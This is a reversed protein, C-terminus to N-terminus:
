ENTPCYRPDTSTTVSADCSRVLGSTNIDIRQQRDGTRTSSYAIYIRRLNSSATGSTIARGFGDFTVSSAATAKTNDTYAAVTVGSGSAAELHYPASEPSTASPVITAGACGSDPSTASVMWATGTSSVRCNNNLTTGSPQNILWFTVQRNRRVAEDRARQLGSQMAEAQSRLKANRMWSSLNPMSSALLLGFIVMTVALEIISFGRQKM